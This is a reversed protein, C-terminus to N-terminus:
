GSTGPDPPDEHTGPDPPVEQPRKAQLDELAEIGLVVAIRTMSTITQDYRDALADLRRRIPPSIRMNLAESHKQSM